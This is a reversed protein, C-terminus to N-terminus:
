SILPATLALILTLFSSFIVAVFIVSRNSYQSKFDGIVVTPIAKQELFSMASSPPLKYNVTDNYAAQLFPVSYTSNPVVTEAMSILSNVLSQSLVPDDVHAFLVGGDDSDVSQLGSVLLFGFGPRSEAPSVLFFFIVLFFFFFFFSLSYFGQGLEIIAEINSM